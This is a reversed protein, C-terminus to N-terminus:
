LSVISQPLYWSTLRQRYLASMWIYGHCDIKLSNTAWFAPSINSVIEKKSDRYKKLLGYAIAKIAENVSDGLLVSNINKFSGQLKEQQDWLM